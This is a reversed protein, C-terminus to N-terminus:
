DHPGEPPPFLADPAVDLVSALVRVTAEHPHNAGRELRGLTAVSVGAERALQEQSLGRAARYVRLPRPRRGTRSYDQARTGSM